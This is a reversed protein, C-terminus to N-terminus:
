VRTLEKLPNVIPHLQCPFIWPSHIHNSSLRQSAEHLGRAVRTPVTRGLESAGHQSTHELTLDRVFSPHEFEWMTPSVVSRYKLM